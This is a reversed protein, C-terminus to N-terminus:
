TTGPVFVCRPRYAGSGVQYVCVHTDSDPSPLRKFEAPVLVSISGAHFLLDGDELTDIRDVRRCDEGGCCKSPYWSHAFLPPTGAVMAGAAAAVAVLACLRVTRARVTSVPLGQARGAGRARPLADALEEV